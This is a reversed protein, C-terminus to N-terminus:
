IPKRKKKKKPQKETTKKREKRKSNITPGSVLPCYPIPMIKLAWLIYVVIFGATAFDMM